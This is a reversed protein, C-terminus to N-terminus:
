NGFINKIFDIISTILATINAILEPIRTIWSLVKEILNSITQINGILRMVEQVLAIIAQIFAILDDLFGTTIKEIFQELQDNKELRKTVVNSNTNPVATASSIMLFVIAITGFFLITKKMKKM